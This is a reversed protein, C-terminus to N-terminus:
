TSTKKRNNRKEYAAKLNMMKTEVALKRARERAEEAQARALETQALAQDEYAKLAAREARARELRAGATGGKSRSSYQAGERVRLQRYPAPEGALLLHLRINVYEMDAHGSSYDATLMDLIHKAETDKWAADIARPYLVQNLKRVTAQVVPIEGMAAKVLAHWYVEPLPKGNNLREYEGWDGRPMLIQRQILQRNLGTLLRLDRILRPSQAPMIGAAFLTSIIGPVENYKQYLVRPTIENHNISM